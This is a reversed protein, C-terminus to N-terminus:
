APQRYTLRKGEAGKIAEVMREGDSVKRHNWKFSQETVYRRLHKKSYHHHTGFHARKLLAFFSEVTNTHEGQKNVYSGASHRVISHGGAFDKGAGRYSTYDDTVIKSEKDVLEQLAGRLEKANVHLVPRAVVSGGREILAAVPTKKTGRGRKHLGTGKRPKGGVYTEDAEVTKGAGGLMGALPEKQMTERIRMTIFWATKVTVGLEREIQRSSIGKKSSTMLHIAM